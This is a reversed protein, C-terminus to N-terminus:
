MAAQDEQCHLDPIPFNGRVDAKFLILDSTLLMIVWKSGRDSLHWSSMMIKNYMNSFGLVYACFCYNLIINRGFGEFFIYLFLFIFM